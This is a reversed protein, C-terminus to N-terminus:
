SALKKLADAYVAITTKREFQQATYIGAVRIREYLVPDHLVNTVKASIDDVSWEEICEPPLIDPVIGVPTAIVPVGCAMAELVVRPGGENLSTMLLLKSRNLIGAVASSDSVFGTIYVKLKAKRARKRACSLLPGDGVIVGTLNAQELVELFLDIGKNRALRGIFAIDYQKKTDQPKFIELDIYFAPIHVMKGSPIGASRLFEPVQTKNIVRVARAFRAELPLVWRAIWRYFRERIGSARPVGPIHMIEMVYPIGTSGHILWMGIGNYFPPYEHVTALEPKQERVIRRGVYWIWLWQLILPWPSPYVHVNNFLTMDYRTMPARPCIVDIRDFHAHLEELTNYFAGRKGAALM